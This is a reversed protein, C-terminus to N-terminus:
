IITEFLNDGKMNNVTARASVVAYVRVCVSVDVVCSPLPLFYQVRM